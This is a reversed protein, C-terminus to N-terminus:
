LSLDDDDEIFLFIEDDFMIGLAVELDHRSYSALLSCVREDLDCLDHFQKNFDDMM